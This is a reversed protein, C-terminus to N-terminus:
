KSLISITSANFNSSAARSNKPISIMARFIGGCPSPRDVKQKRIAAYLRERKNM